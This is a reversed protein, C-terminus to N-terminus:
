TSSAEFYFDELSLSFNVLIVAKLFTKNLLRVVSPSFSRLRFHNAVSKRLSYSRVHDSFVSPLNFLCYVSIVVIYINVKLTPQSFSINWVIIVKAQTSSVRILGETCFIGIYNVRYLPCASRLSKNSLCYNNCTFGLLQTFEILFMPSLPFLALILFYLLVPLLKFCSNTNSCQKKDTKVVRSWGSTSLIM